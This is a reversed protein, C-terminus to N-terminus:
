ACSEPGSQTGSTRIKKRRDGMLTRLEGISLGTVEHMSILLTAGVSLRRHRINSIVPPAVGLAQSLATDTKLKLKAILTDLLRDPDYSAAEEDSKSNSAADFATHVTM